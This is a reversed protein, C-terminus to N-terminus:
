SQPSISNKKYSINLRKLAYFVGSVSVGLRESREVLYADPNKQVDAKLSEMNVKTAPKNRKLVPEIRNQWRFVTRASIGFIESVKEITLKKKEKMEFVKKRFDLSYSM